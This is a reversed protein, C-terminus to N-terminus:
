FARGYDAEIAFARCSMTQIRIRAQFIATLITSQHVAFCWDREFGLDDMAM